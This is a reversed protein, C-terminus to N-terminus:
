YSRQRSGAKAQKCFNAFVIGCNKNWKMFSLLFPGYNCKLRGGQLVPFDVTGLNVFVMRTKFKTRSKWEKQWRSFAYNERVIRSKLGVGAGRWASTLLNGCTGMATKCTSVDTTPGHKGEPTIFSADFLVRFLNSRSAISKIAWIFFRRTPAM